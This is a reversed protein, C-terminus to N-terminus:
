KKEKSRKTKPYNADPRSSPWEAFLLLFMWWVHPVFVLRKQTLVRWSLNLKRENVSYGCLVCYYNNHRKKPSSQTTKRRFIRFPRKNRLNLSPPPEAICQLGPQQLGECHWLGLVNKNNSVSRVIEPCWLGQWHWWQQWKTASDIQPNKISFGDDAIWSGWVGCQVHLFRSRKERRSRVASLICCKTERLSPRTPRYNKSDINAGFSVRNDVNTEWLSLVDWKGVRTM